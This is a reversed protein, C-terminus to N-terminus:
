KSGPSLWHPYVTIPEPELLVLWSSQTQTDRVTGLRGAVLATGPTNLSEQYGCRECHLRCPTWEEVLSQQEIRSRVPHGEELQQQCNDCTTTTGEAVRVGDIVQSLPAITPIM